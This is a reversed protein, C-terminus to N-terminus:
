ARSAPYDPDIPLWAGGAKQAALIAVVLDVSRQMRVAVVIDPGVGLARLRHALRNARRNLADYGLTSGAHVLATALPSRAVQQEFLSVLTDA